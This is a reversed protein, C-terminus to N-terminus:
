RQHRSSGVLFQPSSDFTRVESVLIQNNLTLNSLVRRLRENEKELKKLRRLQDGSM